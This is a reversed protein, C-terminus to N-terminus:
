FSMSEGDFLLPSLNIGDPTKAARDGQTGALTAFTPFLDFTMVTEHCVSPTITGPWSLTTKEGPLYM